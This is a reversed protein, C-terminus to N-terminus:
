PKDGIWRVAFGGMGIGGVVSFPLSRTIDQVLRCGTRRTVGYLSSLKDATLVEGNQLRQIIDFARPMVELHNIKEKGSM